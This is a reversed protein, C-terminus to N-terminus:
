LKWHAHDLPHHAPLATHFANWDGVNDASHDIVQLTILAKLATLRVIPETESGDDKPPFARLLQDCM